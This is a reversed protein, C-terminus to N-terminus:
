YFGPRRMRPAKHHAPHNPVGGDRKRPNHPNNNTIIRLPPRVDHPRFPPAVMRRAVVPPRMHRAPPRSVLIRHVARPEDHYYGGDHYGGTDYGGAEFGSEYYAGGGGDYSGRDYGCRDYGGRDYGGRDYVGRDYGDGDNGGRDYGGGDYGGDDYGGGDYYRRGGRLFHPPHQRPDLRQPMPGYCRPERGHPVRAREYGGGFRGNRMHDDYGGGGGYGDGDGDYGGGDYGGGDDNGGGDYGGGDNGGVGDDNPPEYGGFYDGREGYGDAYGRREAAVGLGRRSTWARATTRATTTAM